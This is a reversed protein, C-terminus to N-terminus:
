QRDSSGVKVFSREISEFLLNVYYNKYTVIFVFFPLFGIRYRVLTGFNPTSLALTGGLVVIYLGTAVILLMNATVPKRLFSIAATIGLLILMANEIAALWQFVNGAEFITPRFLATFLAVPFNLIFSWWDAELSFVAADGPDSIRQFIEYNQVVVDLFRDAYFNPHSISVIGVLGALILMWIVVTRFAPWELPVFRRVVLVSVAVPIFVAAYYYKLSWLMWIGILIGLYSYIRLPRRFWSDIFVGSLLCLAAFAFTEKVVGSTWFVVSPCILFAFCAASFSQPFSVALRSVLFWACVFSVWSCYVSTIWYHDGSLVNLVSIIKVMFLARPQQFNLSGAQLDDRSWLVRLYEGIDERAISSLKSADAFYNFTDGEYHNSYVWGLVLGSVVKLGLLAWYAAGGPEPSNGRQIWSVYGLGILVLIGVIM